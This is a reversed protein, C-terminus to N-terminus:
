TNSLSTTIVLLAQCPFMAEARRFKSAWGPQMTALTSAGQPSHRAGLLTCHQPTSHRSYAILLKFVGGAAWSWDMSAQISVSCAIVLKLIGGAALPGEARQVGEGSRAEGQDRMVPKVGRVSNDEKTAGPTRRGGPAVLSIDTM